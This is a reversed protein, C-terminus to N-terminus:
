VRGPEPGGKESHAVVPHVVARRGALRAVVQAAHAAVFWGSAFGLPVAAICRVVPSQRWIGAIELAVSAATPLAGVALRWAWDPPPAAGAGAPGRSRRAGLVVGAFLSGAWAAGYIGLCRACVPLQVGWAHFSRDARQHCVIRGAVYVLGAANRLIPGAHSVLYPSVLLLVFWLGALASVGSATARSSPIAVPRTTPM